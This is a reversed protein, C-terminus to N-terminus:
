RQTGIDGFLRWPLMPAGLKPADVGVSTDKPQIKRSRFPGNLKAIAYKRNYGCVECFEELIPTKQATSAIRYRPYIARFYEWKTKKGTDL